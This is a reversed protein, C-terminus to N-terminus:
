DDSPVRPPGGWRVQAPGPCLRSGLMMRQRVVLGSPLSARSFLMNIYHIVRRRRRGRIGALQKPATLDDKISAIPNMYNAAIWARITADQPQVRVAAKWRPAHWDRRIKVWTLAMQRGFKM